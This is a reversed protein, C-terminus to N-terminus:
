TMIPLFDKKISTTRPLVINFACWVYIQVCVAPTKLHELGIVNLKYGLYTIHM